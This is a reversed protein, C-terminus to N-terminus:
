LSSHKETWDEYQALFKISASSKVNKLANKFDIMKIEETLLEKELNEFFQTTQNDFNQMRRKFPALAAERCVNEIDDSNYLHTKSVLFKMDIDDALKVNALKINFLSERAKEDPLPIYIRKSLRRLIAEDLDWPRNTAALIFVKPQEEDGSSTIGDIEIFFQVKVKRSAEHENQSRESLLSDIEDIFITTPAYFRAMEFLYKVLKESTGKWKSALAAPNVSFFNTKGTTAIAKALMTKGTGAPGYLLIGKPPKRIKTFFNKMLLPCLISIKLSEKPKELGAIDDFTVGPNTTMLYNEINQILESDPGKGDPYISYLFKKKEEDDTEKNKKKKDKKENMEWPKEYERKPKIKSNKRKKNKMKKKKPSLPEWVMPDKYPQQPPYQNNGRPNNSYQNRFNDVYNFDGRGYGGNNGNNGNNNPNNPNNPYNGNNGNNPNNNNGVYKNNYSNNNNGLYQNSNQGRGYNNRENQFRSKKQQVPKQQYNEVRNNSNYRQRNENRNMNYDDNSHPRLDHHFQFPLQNFPLIKKEKKDIQPKPPLKANQIIYILNMNKNREKKLQTYLKQYMDSIKQEKQRRNEQCKKKAQIIAEKYNNEAEKYMGLYSYERAKKVQNILVQNM